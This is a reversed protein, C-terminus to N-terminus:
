GSSPSDASVPARSWLALARVRRYTVTRDGIRRKAEAVARALLEPPVKLTWRSARREVVGLHDLLAETVEEDSVVELRDPPFQELIKRDRVRPGGARPGMPYGAKRLYDYVITRPNLEPRDLPDPRDPASPEVLAAGGLRGVRCAERLAVGPRDLLHLVHVFLALDFVGDPFPLEYASGRVLRSLQKERAKALMGLSADIGTVSFGRALLPVAMRGTGVGVELLSHVRWGRLVEEIREITERGLADRTDDYVKSIEDFAEVVEQLAM